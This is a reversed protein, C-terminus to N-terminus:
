PLSRVSAHWTNYKPAVRRPLASRDCASSTQTITPYRPETTFSILSTPGTPPYRNTSNSYYSIMITLYQYFRSTPLPPLLELVIPRSFKGIDDSNHRATPPKAEAAGNTGTSALSSSSGSMASSSVSGKLTKERGKGGGGSGVRTRLSDRETRVRELEKLMQNYGSRQKEILKWLQSNQSSLQNREFLAQDLAAVHPNPASAHVALLSSLSIPATTPKVNSSPPSNSPTSNSAPISGSPTRQSPPTGAYPFPLREGAAPRSPTTAPQSSM